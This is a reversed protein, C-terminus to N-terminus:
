RPVTPVRGALQFTASQHCARFEAPVLSNRTPVETSNKPYPGVGYVFRCIKVARDEVFGRPRGLFAPAGPKAKQPQKPNQATRAVSHAYGGDPRPRASYRGHTRRRFVLGRGVYTSM